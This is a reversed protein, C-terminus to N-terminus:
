QKMFRQSTWTGKYLVDLLYPGASLIQIDVWGNPTVTGNMVVRGLADNVRYQVLATSELRIQIRDHAPNPVLQFTRQETSSTIGALVDVSFVAPPTIIPENFDFVIHAINTVTAGDQLDTAPLMSFSFFGHSNPEDSTSDPLMIDDHFVHLVGDTIYWHNSHSSAIFRMSEWQLDESLTDLILVREALYTGTNQFRITYELPTEGQVVVAPSLMKPTLLKDNPDYSGVVSDKFTYSNDVPTEDTALPAAIVTHLINTGLAISAATNLDVSIYKTEGVAIGSLNWTATTTNQVDPAISSGVWSQDSDYTLTVNAGVPITGYNQCSLYLRNDFGPRPPDATLSVRLDQINPTLVAGFDNGTSIDGMSLVDATHQTPAISAIYPYSSAPTVTYSGPQVITEWYGLDSCGVTNGGPQLKVMVQPLGPEGVDYQGNADTDMFVRGTIGPYIGTCYTNLISCYTATEQTIDEGGIFAETLASPWNPICSSVSPIYLLTLGDPLFPVCTYTSNIILSQLSSPISGLSGFVDFGVTLEEMTPPWIITSEGEVYHVWPCDVASFDLSVPLSYVLDLLLSEVQIPPIVINDQDWPRIEMYKIYEMVSWDVNFDGEMVLDLSDPMDTITFTSTGNTCGLGKLEMRELTQPLTPVVISGCVKQVELMRLNPPCAEWTLEFQQWGYSLDLYLSRLSDLYEIGKLDISGPLTSFSEGLSMVELDAIGPDLTDMMGSVDVIGPIYSNLVDRMNLDPIFVQANINDAIGGAFVALVSSFVFSRINM